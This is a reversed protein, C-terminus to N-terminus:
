FRIRGDPLDFLKSAIIDSPYIVLGKNSDIDVAAGLYYSEWVLAACYWNDNRINNMAAKMASTTNFYKKQPLISYGGDLQNKVFQVVSEVQYVTLNLRMRYRIGEFRPGFSVRAKVERVQEKKNFIVMRTNQDFVVAEIVMAKTLTEEITKGEAGEIVIAVHGFNRGDPILCSGPLWSWNPRVLIDGKKLSFPIPEGILANQM